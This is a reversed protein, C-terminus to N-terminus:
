KKQQVRQYITDQLYMTIYFHPISRALLLSIGRMPNKIQNGAIKVVKYYDFPQIILSVSVTTAMSALFLNSTLTRYYDHIPFLSAYLVVNKMISGSYGQYLGYRIKDKITKQDLFHQKYSFNRQSFNKWVDFPHTFISGIFGGLMGNLANNWVDEKKTKRQDQIYRYFSFKSSTSVVQSLIAPTSAQFFGRIGQNKYINEIIKPITSKVDNQFITKVTCIPLTTLEAVFTSISSSLVYIPLDNSTTTFTMKEKLIM